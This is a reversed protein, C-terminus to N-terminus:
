LQRRCYAISRPSSGPRLEISRSSSTEARRLIVSSSVSNGAKNYEASFAFRSGDMQVALAPNLLLGGLTDIPLAVGAGGMSSNVAGIGHLTHGNGAWAAPATMLALALFLAFGKRDM